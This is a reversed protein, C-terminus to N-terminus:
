RHRVQTWVLDDPEEQDSEEPTEPSFQDDMKVSVCTNSAPARSPDCLWKGSEKHRDLSHLVKLTQDLVALKETARSREARSEESEAAINEIEEPELASVVEPTLM